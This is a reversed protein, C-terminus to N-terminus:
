KSHVIAVRTFQLYTWTPVTPTTGCYRNIGALVCGKVSINCESILLQKNTILDSSQLQVGLNPLNIPNGVVSGTWNTNDSITLLYSTPLSFNALSTGANPVLPLGNVFGSQEILIPTATFIPRSIEEIEIKPRKYFRVKDENSLLRNIKFEREWKVNYIGKWEDPVPRVIDGNELYNKLEGLITIKGIGIPTDEYIHVAIVKSIGEYYEPIGDGPEYYIPNGEVDLIEIKIETTEKLFESGEILFGNKGGTFTDKFESIRFYTSNPNDDVLFTQFTSLKELRTDGFKKIRAM